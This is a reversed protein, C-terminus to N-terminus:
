EPEYVCFFPGNIGSRVLLHDFSFPFLLSALAHVCSAVTAVNSGHVVVRREILVLFFLKAILDSSLSQLLPACNVEGLFFRSVPPM